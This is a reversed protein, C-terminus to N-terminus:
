GMVAAAHGAGATVLIRRYSLTSRSPASFGKNVLFQRVSGGRSRMDELTNALYSPPAHRPADGLIEPPVAIQRYLDRLRQEFKGGLIDESAAYDEFIRESTLGVTAHLLAIVPGTRDKGATCHVLVADESAEALIEMVRVVQHIHEDMILRYLAALSPFKGFDRDFLRDEFIPVREYRM